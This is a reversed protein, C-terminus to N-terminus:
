QGPYKEWVRFRWIAVKQCYFFFAFWRKQMEPTKMLTKIQAATVAVTTGNTLIVQKMREM